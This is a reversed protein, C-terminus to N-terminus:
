SAQRIETAVTQEKKAAMELGQTSCPKCSGPHQDFVGAAGVCVIHGAGLVEAFVEEAVDALLVLLELGAAWALGVMAAKMVLM